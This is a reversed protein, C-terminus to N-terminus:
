FENSDVNKDYIDAYYQQMDDSYIEVELSVTEKDSVQKLYSEVKEEIEKKTNCPGLIEIVDEEYFEEKRALNLSLVFTIYVVSMSLLIIILFGSWLITFLLSVSISIAIGYVFYAVISQIAGKKKLFYFIAVLFFLAVFLIFSLSFYGISELWNNNLFSLLQLFLTMRKDVYFYAEKYFLYFNSLYLLWSAIVLGEILLFLKVRKQTMKVKQIM